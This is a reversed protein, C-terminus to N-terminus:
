KYDLDYETCRKEIEKIEELIGQSRIENYPWLLVAELVYPSFDSQNMEKSFSMAAIESLARINSQHTYFPLRWLVIKESQTYIGKVSAEIHHFLEHGIILAQATEKSISALGSCKLKELPETMLRIGEDEAYTVFTIRENIQESECSVIPVAMQECIEGVDAFPYKKKISCATEIGCDISQQILIKQKSLPIKKWFLDRRFQYFGWIEEPIQQLENLLEELKHKNSIEPM